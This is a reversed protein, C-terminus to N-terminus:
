SIELIPLGLYVPKNITVTINKMETALFDESFCKITHYNPESM